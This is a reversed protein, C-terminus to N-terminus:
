YKKIVMSGRMRKNGHGTNTKSLHVSHLLVVIHDSRFPRVKEIYIEKAPYRIENVMSDYQRM